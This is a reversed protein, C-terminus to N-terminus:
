SIFINLLYVVLVEYTFTFTVRQAWMPLGHLGIEDDELNDDLNPILNLTLRPRPSQSLNHLHQLQM